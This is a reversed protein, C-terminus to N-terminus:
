RDGRDIPLGELLKHCRSCLTVLNSLKNMEKYDDFDGIRKIHHVHLETDFQEIHEAMGLGCRQCTESDRKLAKRRQENWNPGYYSEYGGKWNYHNEGRYAKSRWQSLCEISCFRAPDASQFARFETGCTECINDLDDRWSHHFEKKRGGEERRPIEHREMWDMVCDGSVGLEDGITHVSKNNEWYENNLWESDSLRKFADKSLRSMSVRLSKDRKPIDNRDMWRGITSKECNLEDAIESTSMGEGWYLRKLREANRWPFKEIDNKDLWYEIAHHSVGYESAIDSATRRNEVFEKQLIDEDQYPKEMTYSVTDSSM